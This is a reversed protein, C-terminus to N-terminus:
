RFLAIRDRWEGLLTKPPKLGEILYIASEIKLSTTILSKGDASLGPSNGNVITTQLQFGPYEAVARSRGTAVDVATLRNRETLYLTGSDKSFVPGTWNQMTRSILVRKSKGDPSVLALGETVAVAIWRGDPSWAPRINTATEMVREPKSQGDLSIRSLHWKAGERELLALTKGDPAWVPQSGQTVSTSRGGEAAVVYITQGSAYAIRRGDPSFKLSEIRTERGGEREGSAVVRKQGTNRDWLWISNGTIYALKSGDLNWDPQSGGQKGLSLEEPASGDLPVIIPVQLRETTSALHQGGRAGVISYPFGDGLGMFRGSELDFLGSKLDRLLIHRGDSMWEASFTGGFGGGINSIAHRQIEARPPWPVVYLLTENSGRTGILLRRRDPSFRLRIRSAAQFEPYPLRRPTYNPPSYDYLSYTGSPEQRAALIGSGDPAEVIGDIVPFGNIPERVLQESAGSVLSFSWITRNEVGGVAFLLRKGDVSFVPPNSIGGRWDPSIPVAVEADMSRSMVGGSAAFVFSKGDPAWAPSSANEVDGSMPTIKLESMDLRPRDAILIGAFVSVLATAAIAAPWRWRGGAAKVAPTERTASATHHRLAFALDKASQFRQERQKELCRRVIDRVMPPVTEALEPPESKLIANMAEVATEADFARRGALMEYVVAGFSFIDSRADVSEGRVQEPSMYGATGMVTGAATLTADANKATMQALGFDLIKARGDRTLMINDPKLDRHTVGSAHAAALGDAVQAAIDMAKRLPFSQGRLTEGDILESVTFVVGGAEGIDHLAVINPHNLAAVAKAETEFRNRRQGDRAFEAPLVKLAVVRDLRTDKARFVEGMGGAGIAAVIEFHGLRDGPSLPM